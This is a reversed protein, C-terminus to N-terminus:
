LDHNEELHALFNARFRTLGEAAPGFVYWQIWWGGKPTLYARGIPKEDRSQTRMIEISDGRTSGYLYYYSSENLFRGYYKGAQVSAGWTELGSTRGKSALTTGNASRTLPIRPRM